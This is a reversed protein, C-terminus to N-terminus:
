RHSIKIVDVEYFAGEYIIPVPINWIMQNNPNYTM